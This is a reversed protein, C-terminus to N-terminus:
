SEEMRRLAEGLDVPLSTIGAKAREAASMEYINDEAEPPLTRQTTSM